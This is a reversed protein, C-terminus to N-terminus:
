WIFKYEGLKQDRSPKYNISAQLRTFGVPYKGIIVYTDRGTTETIERAFDITEKKINSKSGKVVQDGKPNDYLALYGTEWKKDGSIAVNTVSSKTKNINEGPPSITLGFLIGSGHLKNVDIDEYGDLNIFKDNISPPKYEKEEVEDMFLSHAGELSFAKIIIEM